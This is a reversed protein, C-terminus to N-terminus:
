KKGSNDNMTNNTSRKIPTFYGASQGWKFTLFAVVIMILLMILCAVCKNMFFSKPKNDEIREIYSIIEELTMGPNDKLLTKTLKNDPKRLMVLIDPVIDQNSYLDTIIPYAIFQIIKKNKYIDNIKEKLEKHNNQIIEIDNKTLVIGQNEFLEKIKSAVPNQIEKIM